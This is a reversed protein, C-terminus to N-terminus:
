VIEDDVDSPSDLREFRRHERSVGLDINRHHAEVRIEHHQILDRQRSVCDIGLDLGQNLVLASDLSANDQNQVDIPSEGFERDVM